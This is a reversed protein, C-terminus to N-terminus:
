ARRATVIWAASGFLVGDATEHARMTARLAASAADRGAPDLDDLLWGFHETVFRHADGADAGFWVPERVDALGVGTFGAAGLLGRVRGPDGMSFPGPADAPPAPLDRGAALAGFFERIWENDAFAQWVLLAVRGGPRLAGAINTFAAVPDGFFMVGNRSIVVDAAAVPFPNRQADAQEFTVNALSEEAARARALALMQRSLDVGLARGHVARRAAERTTAGSGCGIDLVRDGPGIAAADFLHRQYRAVGADFRDAHAAWFAGGGGDWATLQEANSPDVDVM